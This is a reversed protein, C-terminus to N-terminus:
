RVSHRAITVFPAANKARQDEVANKAAMKHMTSTVLAYCCGSQVCPEM